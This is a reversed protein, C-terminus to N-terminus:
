YKNILKKLNFNEIFNNVYNSPSPEAVNSFSEVTSCACTKVTKRKNKKEKNLNNKCIM